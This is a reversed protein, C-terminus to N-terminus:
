IINILYVIYKYWLYLSVFIIIIGLIWIKYMLTYIGTLTIVSLIFVLIFSHFSLTLM